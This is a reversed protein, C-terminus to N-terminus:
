RDMNSIIAQVQSRIQENDTIELLKNLQKRTIEPYEWSTNQAISVAAAAAERKLDKDSLLGMAMDLADPSGIRSLGSMVVKKEDIGSALQFAHKIERLQEDASLAGETLALDVYGRMALSHKKLDGTHEVIARLDPLPVADHWGSLARIVALQVEDSGSSLYTRLVPLDKPDGINGIISLLSLVKNEDTVTPLVKIIESSRESNAPMKRTLSLISREAEQQERRSDSRILIGTMRSLYEPSALKGLARIAEIRVDPEPDSTYQILMDITGTMNREGCSRILEARVAGTTTGISSKILTATGPASLMDLGQRAMDREKGPKASAITAPLIADSANGVLSLSKVAAVRIVPDDNSLAQLIVKRVSTDGEEALAVFLYMSSTPPLGPIEDFIRGFNRPEKIQHVLSIVQRHFSPDENQLHRLLFSFPNESGALFKGKLAATKIALPPDADYVKNYIALASNKDGASLLKGACKMQADLVDWKLGGCAAQSFEDLIKLAEKGGITGLANIVAKVKITDNSRILPELDTVAEEEKRVALSNIIAIHNPNGADRLAKRLAEGAEAAPIKELALLATEGTEKNKLMSSLVPVSSATGIIGLETCILQKGAMGADSRLFQIMQQEIAPLADPSKYAQAMLERFAPLWSRSKDYDYGAIIKLMDSMKSTIEQSTNVQSYSQRPVSLLLVIATLVM